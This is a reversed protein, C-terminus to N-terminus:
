EDVVGKFFGPLCVAKSTACRWLGETVGPSKTRPHQKEVRSKLVFAVCVFVGPWFAPRKEQAFKSITLKARFM